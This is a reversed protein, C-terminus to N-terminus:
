RVGGAASAARGLAEQARALLDQAAALHDAMTDGGADRAAIRPLHQAVNTDIPAGGSGPIPEAAKHQWIAWDAGPPLDPSKAGWHAVWLHVDPHELIGEPNGLRRWDAQSTYIVCGGWRRRMAAVIQRLKPALQPSLPPDGYQTNTEVDLCPLLDGPTTACRDQAAVIAGIHEAADQRPRWFHYLGVVAGATRAAEAHQEAAADPRIGYTGRVYAWEIGHACMAAWDLAGPQQHHSVDVGNSLRM